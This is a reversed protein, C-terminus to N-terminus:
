GAAMGKACWSLTKGAAPQNDSSSTIRLQITTTSAPGCFYLYNGLTQCTISTYYNTDAMEVPITLTQVSAISTVLGGMEVWGDSYLRYWTYDNDATPYQVAVLVPVHFGGQEAGNHIRLGNTETDYTIEGQAGTFINNEATTGRRLQMQTAM